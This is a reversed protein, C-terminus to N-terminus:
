RDFYRVMQVEKRTLGCKEYYGVNHEACDLIVKYCGAAQAREILHAILSNTKKTKKTEPPPPPVVPPSSRARRSRRKKAGGLYNFVYLSARACMSGAMHLSLWLACIWCCASM